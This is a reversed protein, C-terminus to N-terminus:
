KILKAEDSVNKYYIESKRKQVIYLLYLINVLPNIYIANLLAFKM